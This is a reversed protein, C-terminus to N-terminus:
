QQYSSCCLQQAATPLAISSFDTASILFAGLLMAATHYKMSTTDLKEVVFLLSADARSNAIVAESLVLICQQQDIAV